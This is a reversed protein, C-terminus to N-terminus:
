SRAQGSCARRREFSRDRRAGLGVTASLRGSRDDNSVTENGESEEKGMRKVM